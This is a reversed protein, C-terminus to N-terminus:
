LLYSSSLVFKHLVPLNTRADGSTKADHDSDRNRKTDKCVALDSVDVLRRHHDRVFAKRADEQNAPDVAVDLCREANQVPMHFGGIRMIHRLELLHDFVEMRRVCALPGAEFCKRLAVAFTREVLGELPAAGGEPRLKVCRDFHAMKTRWGRLLLRQLHDPLPDEGLM